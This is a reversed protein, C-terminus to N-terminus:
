MSDLYLLSTREPDPASFVLSLNCVIPAHRDEPSCKVSPPVVEDQFIVATHDDFASSEIADDIVRPSDLDISSSEVPAFIGMSTISVTKVIEPTKGAHGNISSLEPGYDPINVTRDRDASAREIVLIEIGQLIVVSFGINVLSFEAAPCGMSHAVSTIQLKPAAAIIRRSTIGADVIDAGAVIGANLRVIVNVLAGPESILQTLLPLASSILFITLFVGAIALTVM